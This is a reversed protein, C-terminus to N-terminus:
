HELIHMNIYRAILDQEHKMKKLLEILSTFKHEIKILVHSVAAPNMCKTHFKIEVSIKKIRVAMM